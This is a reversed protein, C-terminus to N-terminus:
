LQAAEDSARHAHEPSEVGAQNTLAVRLLSTVDQAGERIRADLMKSTTPSESRELAEVIHHKLSMHDRPSVFAVPFGLNSAQERLQAHDYAIVPTDVFSGVNMAGSYGGTANYPLLMVKHSAVIQLLEAESVQGLYRVRRSGLTSQLELPQNAGADFVPSQLGVITVSASPIQELVEKLVPAVGPLDKQPGWNGLLLIGGSRPESELSARASESMSFYAAIGEIYRLFRVSVDRGLMRRLTRAQSELPAVVRCTSLVIHELFKGAAISLRREGYGLAHIDQTEVFNHMYVLVPKRSM